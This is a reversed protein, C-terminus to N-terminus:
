AKKGKMKSKLQSIAQEIEKIGQNIKEFREKEENLQTTNQMAKEFDLSSSGAAKRLVELQSKIEQRRENRQRLVEQLQDLAQRDDDSLNLLDKERKETIIDRVPKLLRELEQKESKTLSSEQIQSLLSDREGTLAEADYKESQSVLTEIQEKFAEYKARKQKKHLEGLELRAAEEGKVKEQIKKRVEHLEDRLERLEDRGLETNRMKDALENLRNQWEALNGEVGAEVVADLSKIQERIENANQKFFAKQHAREKKRDKEEHKIKDWCASLRTRTQTFCNTNLTLAKALGQLSKIEERLVFLSDEFGKEPFYTQIFNEVDEGFQQSIQKILEKRKPFVLDGASSLRQFFKNKQRIRMETKLLEKRLANIRSAQANLINLQKQLEFYFTKKDNLFHPLIFHDPLSAKEANEDFQNIEQELAGIAIEIQEVAFASQEDLIEKLRRAEKSLESYKNWLSSRSAPSINEKFLPLSIRRAEWFNRFNPTGGQGLSAEMFDIAFQLKAELEPLEQFGKLFNELQNKYDEGSERRKHGRSEKGEESHEEALNEEDKEAAHELLDEGLDRDAKENEDPEMKEEHDGKVPDELDLFHPNPDNSLSQQQPEELHMNESESM